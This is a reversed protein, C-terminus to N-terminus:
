RRMPAFLARKEGVRQDGGAILRMLHDVRASWTCEQAFQRRQLVDGAGAGAALRIKAIFDETGQARLVLAEAGAPPAVGTTVVPLGMALYEYV